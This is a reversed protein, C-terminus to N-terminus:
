SGLGGLPRFVDGLPHVLRPLPSALFQCSALHEPYAHSADVLIRTCHFLAAVATCLPVQGRASPSRESRACAVLARPSSCADCEKSALSGGVVVIAGAIIWPRAQPFSKTGLRLVPFAPAWVLPTLFKWQVPLKPDNWETLKRREGAAM